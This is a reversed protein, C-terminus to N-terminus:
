HVFILIPARSGCGSREFGYGLFLKCQTYLYRGHYFCAMELMQFNPRGQNGRQAKFFNHRLFDAHSKLLESDM